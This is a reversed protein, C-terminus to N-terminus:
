KLIDRKVDFFGLQGKYKFPTIKEPNKLSWCWGAFNNWPNNVIDPHNSPITDEIEVSGLICGTPLYETIEFRKVAEEDIEKGAHILVRGRIKTRWSRNELPKYGNLILYAWPQKISIAKM